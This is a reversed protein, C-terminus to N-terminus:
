QWDRRKEDPIRELIIRVNGDCHEPIEKVERVSNGDSIRIELIQFAGLTEDEEGSLVLVMWWKRLRKGQLASVPAAIEPYVSDSSESFKIGNGLTITESANKFFEGGVKKVEYTVWIYREDPYIVRVVQFVYGPWKDFEVYDGVECGCNPRRIAVRDNAQVIRDRFYDIELKHFKM